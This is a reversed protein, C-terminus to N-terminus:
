QCTGWQVTYLDDQTGAVGDRGPGWYVSTCVTPSPCSVQPSPAIDCVTKCTSIPGVCLTGEVCQEADLSANPLCAEGATLGGTATADCFGTPRVANSRRCGQSESPCGSEGLLDCATVSSSCYGVTGWTTGGASVYVRSSDFCGEGPPCGADEGVLITRPDCLTACRPGYMTDVCLGTRDCNAGDRVQEQWSPSDCEGGPAVAGTERCWGYYGDEMPSCWGPRQDPPAAGIEAGLTCEGGTSGNGVAEGCFSWWCHGAMPAYEAGLTGGDPPYCFTHFPCDATTTCRSLCFSEDPYYAVDTCDSAPACNADIGCKEFDPVFQEGGDPSADVAGSDASAADVPLPGDSSSGHPQGCAGCLPANLIALMVQHTRPFVSGRGVQRHEISGSKAPTTLGARLSDLMLAHCFVARQLLIDQSECLKADDWTMM